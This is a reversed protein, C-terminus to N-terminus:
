SGVVAVEFWLAARLVDRDAEDRCEVALERRISGLIADKAFDARV